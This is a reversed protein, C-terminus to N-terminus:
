YCLLEEMNAGNLSVIFQALLKGTKVIDELSITEVSTHMYRLPISLLGTAVGDRSVQMPWADTGTRGPAVEIQYDIYHEKAVKKLMEFIKPHINGGMTIAPGKDIEITDFKNLEPTHGFGVDIAIGIDPNIKYTSTIAGRTGVEEQVTAVLYVDIDHKLNQLEKLCVYLAAVGARDDLSKGAIWDNLLTTLNRKITIIDGIKILSEIESKKLGTDILMDEMKIAKSQITDTTLNSPHMGIVGYVKEVGHIIVEQCLLTRQDIGGINTFQIYGEKDINKVMLGIEDMHAALMIRNKSNGSGKKICILNGLVDQQIENVYQGFRNKVIKRVEDEYGSVGYAESLEKIFKKIGLCFM